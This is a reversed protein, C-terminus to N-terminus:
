FYQVLYLLPVAALCVCVSTCMCMCVIQLYTTIYFIFLHVTVKSVPHPSFTQIYEICDDIRTHTILYVYIAITYVLILVWKCMYKQTTGFIYAKIHASQIARLCTEVWLCMCVYICVNYAEHKHVHRHAQHVAIFNMLIWTNATLM